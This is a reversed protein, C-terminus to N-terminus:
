WGMQMARPAFHKRSVEADEDTSVNRYGGYSGRSRRLRNRIFPLNEAVEMVRSWGLSALGLVFRPVSALNQAFESDTYRGSDPLRISRFTCLGFDM